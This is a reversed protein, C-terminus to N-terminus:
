RPRPAWYDLLCYCSLAHAGTLAPAKSTAPSTPRGQPVQVCGGQLASGSPCPSRPIGLPLLKSLALGAKFTLGRNRPGSWEAPLSLSHTPLDALGTFRLTCPIKLFYTRLTGGWQWGSLLGELLRFGLSSGRPRSDIGRQPRILSPCRRRGCPAWWVQPATHGGTGLLQGEWPEEELCEHCRNTQRTSAKM